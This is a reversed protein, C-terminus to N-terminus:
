INAALELNKKYMSSLLDQTLELEGSLAERALNHKQNDLLYAAFAVSALSFIVLLFIIVITETIDFTGLQRNDGIFIITWRKQKKKNKM